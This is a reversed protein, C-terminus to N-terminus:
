GPRIRICILAIGWGLSGATHVREGAAAEAAGPDLNGLEAKAAGPEAIQELDDGFGLGGAKMINL